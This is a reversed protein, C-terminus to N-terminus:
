IQAPGAANRFQLEALTDVSKSVVDESGCFWIMHGTVSAGYSAQQGFIIRVSIGPMGMWFHRKRNDELKGFMLALAKICSKCGPIPLVKSLEYMKNEKHYFNSWFTSRVANLPVSIEWLKREGRCNSAVNRFILRTNTVACVTDSSEVLGLSLLKAVISINQNCRWVSIIAEDETLMAMTLNDSVAPVSHDYVQQPIDLQLDRPM